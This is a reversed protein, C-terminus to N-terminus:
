RWAALLALMPIKALKGSAEDAPLLTHFLHVHLPSVEALLAAYFLAVLVCAARVPLGCDNWLQITFYFKLAASQQLDRYVGTYRLHLCMCTYLRSPQASRLAGHGGLHRRTREMKM